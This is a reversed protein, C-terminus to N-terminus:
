PRRAEAPAPLRVEIMTGAHSSDIHLHGDLAEARERMSRLGIGPAEGHAIGRGDDSVEIVIERDVVRVRVQMSRAHAHRAANTMAEAIILYAGEAASEDLHVGREVEVDVRIGSRSIRTALEHVAETLPMDDLASPSVEGALARVTRVRRALDDALEELLRGADDANPPMASLLNEVAALGFGIGAFSPGLGDHLERQIRRREQARRAIVAARARDLTERSEILRVTTTLLGAIDGLVTLTRGDLRQGEPAWARVEAIADPGTVVVGAGSPRGASAALPSRTSRVDIARLRLARRAAACLEQLGAAGPELEGVREGLRRLVAPADLGEGYVLMDIRRQLWRRLPHIGLAIALPVAIWLGGQEPLMRGIVLVVALYIGVGVVSLLAWLVLRSVLIRVGWLRQGLVVVLIAAPYVIQGIVPSVLSFAAFWGPIAVGAPVVLALYSVTLFGHGITLWAAGARAAPSARAWRMALVACSVFSLGVAVFSLATYMAPLASQLPSWPIALPNRPEATSQQVLSLVFASAAVAVGIGVLVRQWGPIRRRTVLIPLVATMFTGPVFGWGAAFALLGWLPLGDHRAGLLGWQVGFAALGSGVAHIALIVGVPHASRSILLASVPGYLLAVTVGIAAFTSTVAPPAPSLFVGPLPTTPLEASWSLVLAALALTWSSTWITAAILRRTM